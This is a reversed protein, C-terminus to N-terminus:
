YGIATVVVVDNNTTTSTLTCSTASNATQKLTNTTTTQDQASCIYGNASTPLGSLIITGGSCLPATFRGATAGGTWGSGSCSGTTLTPASGASAQFAQASHAGGNNCNGGDSCSFIIGNYASNVVQFNGTSAEVRIYKNPFSGNSGIMKIGVGNTDSTASVIFSAFANVSSDTITLPNGYLYFGGNTNVTTSAGSWFGSAVSQASPAASAGSSNGLVTNSGVSAIPSFAGFAGGNSTQAFGPNAWLMFVALLIKSIHRM